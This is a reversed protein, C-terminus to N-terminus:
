TSCGIEINMAIVSKMYKMVYSHNQLTLVDEMTILVGVIKSGAVAALM